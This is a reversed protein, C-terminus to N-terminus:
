DTANSCFRSMKRLEQSNTESKPPNKLVASQGAAEHSQKSDSSYFRFFVTFGFFPKLCQADDLQVVELILIVRSTTLADTVLLPRQFCCCNAVYAM